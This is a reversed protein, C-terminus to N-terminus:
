SLKSPMKVSDPRDGLQASKDRGALKALAVWHRPHPCRGARIHMAYPKSVGIAHAIERIKLAKLGPLIQEAYYEGNLWAPLSSPSWWSNGVAHDSLVTSIWARERTSIQKAHGILVVQEM